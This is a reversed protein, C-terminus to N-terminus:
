LGDLELGLTKILSFVTHSLQHDQPNLQSPLPPPPLPASAPEAQPQAPSQEWHRSDRDGARAIGLGGGHSQHGSVPAAINCQINQTLYHQKERSLNPSTDQMSFVFSLSSLQPHEGSPFLLQEEQQFEWWM